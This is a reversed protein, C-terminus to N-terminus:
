SVLINQAESERDHDEFEITEPLEVDSEGDRWAGPM